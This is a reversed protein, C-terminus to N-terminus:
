RWAPLALVSSALDHVRAIPDSELAAVAAREEPTPSAVKSLGWLGAAREDPTVAQLATRFAARAGVDDPAASSLTRLLAVRLEPTVADAGGLRLALLAAPLLPKADAGLKWAGAVIEITAVRVTADPDDALRALAAAIEPPLSSLGAVSRAAAARRGPDQQDSLAEVLTSRTAAQGGAPDMKALARLAGIPGRGALSGDSGPEERTRAFAAVADSATAADPVRSLAVAGAFWEGRESPDATRIRRAAYAGVGDGGVALLAQALLFQGSPTLTSELDIMSRVAPRAKEGLNRLAILADYSAQEGDRAARVIREITPADVSPIKGLARMSAGRLPDKQDELHSALAPRLDDPVESFDLDNRVLFSIAAERSEPASGRLREAMLSAVGAPVPKVGAAIELWVGEDAMGADRTATSLADAGAKPDAALAALVSTLQALQRTSGRDASEKVAKAARLLATGTAPDVRKVLEEYFEALPAAAAHEALERLFRRHGEVKMLAAQAWARIRGEPGAAMEGLIRLIEPDAAAGRRVIDELALLKFADLRSRLGTLAEDADMSGTPSAFPDRPPGARQGAGERSGDPTRDLTASNTAADGPRQDMLPSHSTSVIWWGLAGSGSVCVLGLAVWRTPPRPRVTPSTIMGQM